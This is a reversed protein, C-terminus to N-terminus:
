PDIATWAAKSLPDHLARLVRTRFLTYLSAEDSSSAAAEAAIREADELRGEALALRAKQLTAPVCNPDLRLAADVDWRVKARRADSDLPRLEAWLVHVEAATLTRQKEIPAAHPAYKTRLLATEYATLGARFDRELTAPTVDGLATSWA